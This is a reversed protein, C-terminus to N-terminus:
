FTFNKLLQILNLTYLNHKLNRCHDLIDMWGCPFLPLLNCNDLSSLCYAKSHTSGALFYLLARTFSLSEHSSFSFHPFIESTYQLSFSLSGSIPQARAALLSAYLLFKCCNYISLVYFLKPSQFECQM